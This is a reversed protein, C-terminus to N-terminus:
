QIASTKVRNSKEIYKKVTKFFDEPNEKIDNNVEIKKLVIEANESPTKGTIKKITYTTGYSLGAQLVNGTSGLTYAPGLLASNQVCGNLLILNLIIYIKKM